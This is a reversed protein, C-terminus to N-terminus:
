RLAALSISNASLNSIFLGFMLSGWAIIVTYTAIESRDYSRYRRSILFSVFFILVSFMLIGILM